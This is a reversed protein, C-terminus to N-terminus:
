LARLVAARPRSPTPITRSSWIVRLTTKNDRAVLERIAQRHFGRQPSITEMSTPPSVEPGLIPTGTDLNLGVAANTSSWSGTGDRQTSAAKAYPLAVHPVLERRGGRREFRSCIALDQGSATSRSDEDHRGPLSVARRQDSRDRGLRRGRRVAAPLSLREGGPGAGRIRPYLFRGPGGYGVAGRHSPARRPRRSPSEAGRRWRARYGAHRARDGREVVARYAIPCAGPRRDRDHTVTVDSLPRAAHTALLVSRHLVAHQSTTSTSHARRRGRAGASAPPRGTM